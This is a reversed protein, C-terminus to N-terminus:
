SLQQVIRDCHLAIAKTARQAVEERQPTEPCSMLANEFAGPFDAALQLVRSILAVADLRLTQGAKEWQRARIRSVQREGGVSVAVTRDVEAKDYVLGTALDYLPAIWNEESRLMSINKSHGDPAGAVVNIALFDALALADEGRNHSQRQVLGAM